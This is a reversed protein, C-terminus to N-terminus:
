RMEKDRSRTDTIVDLATMIALTEALDINSDCHILSMGVNHAPRPPIESPFRSLESNDSFFLSINKRRSKKYAIADRCKIM